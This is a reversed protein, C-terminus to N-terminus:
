AFTELLGGGRGRLGAAAVAIRDNAGGQGRARSRGAMVGAVSLATAAGSRKLFRRRNM